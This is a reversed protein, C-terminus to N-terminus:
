SARFVSAVIKLDRHLRVTVTSISKYPLLRVGQRSLTKVARWFSASFKRPTGRSPRAIPAFCGALFGAFYRADYGRLTGAIAPCHCRCHRRVDTLVVRLVVQRAGSKSACHGRRFSALCSAIHGRLLRAATRAVALAVDRLRSTPIGDDAKLWSMWFNHVCWGYWRGIKFREALRNLFEPRIRTADREVTQFWDM